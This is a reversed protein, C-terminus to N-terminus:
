SRDKDNKILDRDDDNHCLRYFDCKGWPMECSNFNRPFLGTKISKNIVNVNELLLGLMRDPVKDIIVQTAVNLKVSRDWEGGCRKGEITNNCTKHTSEGKYGCTKCIKLIDKEIGKRLVLFGAKDIHHAWGTEEPKNAYENLIITYLGLQPSKVVSDYEYEISSTKVDLVVISGDEWEAVLDVYGKVIDGDSNKIEVEIQTGLVKKIKPLIHTYFKDIMLHGKRRLCLWNTLNYFQRDELPLNEWGRHEKEELIRSREDLPNDRLKFLRAWDAKQLLDYDFDKKAYTVNENEVINIKIGNKDTQEIWMRDFQFRAQELNKTKLLIETGSDIASGFYLAGSKFKSSYKNIYRHEYAKPCELFKAIASHSLRNSM